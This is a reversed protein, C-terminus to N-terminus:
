GGMQQSWFDNYLGKHALLEEHSGQEILRGHDLVIIRHAQRMLALRHAIMIVTRGQAMQRLNQSIQWESEPDLASTAEDFILIKPSTILARAIALRQKQGGSLNVANEELITDYGTHFSSIFEHAGALRAAEIVEETSADPRGQRINDRITGHFFYNEQLVVGINRRLHMKDLERIDIGDMRLFGHQPTYMAQVLKAITSKGSGSRGVIGLIEGPRIHLTFDNIVPLTDPRYQFSVDHFSIDGRVESRLNGGSEEPKSNMVVGLMRVSLSVQQYEHVLSVMKVLPSSVRSSIMQFAILAGMSLRADFVLHAGYWIIVINMIMELAQSFVKATISIKGVRFYSHVAFATMENWEKERMPELALSKITQIGRISEVLSSQRKGEATYLEDLRKQFPKILSVM